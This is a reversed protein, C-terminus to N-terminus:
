YNDEGTLNQEAQDAQWAIASVIKTIELSDLTDALQNSQVVVMDGSDTKDVAFAGHVMQSNFQLLLATNEPLLPGCVSVFKILNQGTQDKEGFRIQVKQKRLSGVDLTVVWREPSSEEMNWQSKTAVNRILAEATPASAPKLSDFNLAVGAAVGGAQAAPNAGAPKGGAQPQGPVGQNFAQNIMGPLMMGFGAGLGMGMVGSDGGGPNTAMERMSNAAQYMTYSRLDGIAGISSRTDIAKQVEKPVNISNIFFDVLELGFKAFEEAVKARTGTSIEDYMMQLDLVGMNSSAILDQMRSVVLDKLYSTAQVTSYTGQTGVLRNILLTSDTVRYSFKGFSRVRVMGFDKDRIIIPQRTGWKQDIFDQKGVYYVSCQFPSKEWPITLIRTIIPLNQTTLMHRGPGFVDMAKGDRFFVAEQQQQVILQAGYKIDASGSPPIRHVLCQGSADFFDIVELQFGM